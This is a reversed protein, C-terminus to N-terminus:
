FLFALNFIFLIIIFLGKIGFKFDEKKAMLEPYIHATHERIINEFFDHMRRVKIQGEPDDKWNDEELKLRGWQQTTRINGGGAIVADVFDKRHQARTFPM